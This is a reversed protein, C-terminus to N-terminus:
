GGAALPLWVRAVFGGGGAAPQLELRGQLLDVYRAVIALGLGAGEARGPGPQQHWRKQLGDLANGEIGPGNDAVCLRAHAGEQGLSVTVRPMGKAPRGHRLANTILNDVIGEILGANGLVRVTQDLGEAGLDVGLADARPVFRLVCDRVLTDLELPTRALAVSGEAARALALLQEVTRSARAEALAIGQLERYWVEANPQSLAHAAQARIGALPTRLEHAVNGAFEQQASLSTRVRALLGDLAEGLAQVERTAAHHTLHAPLPQLDSADRREIAAQLETLPQLDREIWRMLWLGLVVLLWVQALASYALLRRILETRRATTQALVVTFPPAEQIQLSVRRQARGDQEFSAFVQTAGPPIRDAALQPDGAVLRQGTDFVAYRTSERPDFVLIHIERPTLDLRLAEDGGGRVHSALAHADDLLARDFAESVFHNGVAMLVASGLAWVLALSLLVHRGIRQRLAVPRRWAMRPLLLRRRGTM